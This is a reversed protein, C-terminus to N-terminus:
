PEWRGAPAPKEQGMLEHISTGEVTVKGIGYADVAYGFTEGIDFPSGIRRKAYAQAGKLTKFKRTESFHDITRFRVTINMQGEWNCKVVIRM